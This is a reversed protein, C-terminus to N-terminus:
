CTRQLYGAYAGKAFRCAFIDAELEMPNEASTGAASAGMENGLYRRTFENVGMEAYQHVHYLEHMWLFKGQTEGFNPVEDFVILDDMVQAKAHRHKEIAFSPLSLEPIDGADIFRASSFQSRIEPPLSSFEQSQLVEQPIPKAKDWVTNRTKQVHSAAISYVPNLYDVDGTRSFKVADDFINVVVNEDVPVLAYIDDLIKQAEPGFAKRVGRSLESYAQDKVRGVERVVDRSARFIESGTKTITKKMTAALRSDWGKRCHWQEVKISSIGIRNLMSIDMYEDDFSRTKRGKSVTANVGGQFVVRDLVESKDPGIISVSACGTFGSGRNDNLIKARVFLRDGRLWVWTEIWHGTGRVSSFPIKPDTQRARERLKSIYTYHVHPDKDRHAKPANKGSHANLESLPLVFILISIALIRAFM